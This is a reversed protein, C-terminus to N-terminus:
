SPQMDEKKLLIPFHERIKEDMKPDIYSPYHNALIERAKQKSRERMDKAGADLWQQSTSRDSIEPYYYESRSLKQTQPHALYHGAGGLVTEKIVDFSLTEETVEIGRLTRNIMGLMDNDMVLSDFSSALLSNLTGASESIMNAGALAALTVTVGKEFGSQADAIKSDTMGAAIGSPLDYFDNVMQATAATMLAQEASGGSFSGTRLDSAFPWAAFDIECGPRIINAVALCALTEAIVQVLSGALATPSTSGSQSAVAFSARMGIKATHAFVDLSDKAFRMPSIVPCVGIGMFPRKLFAGEEGLAMDLMAIIPAIYEVNDLSVCTSKNSGAYLAYATNIAHTRADPIDTAVVMQSSNHINDLADVVRNLDYMDKLTSPRYEGTDMDAMSIAEGGTCFYVKNGSLDLDWKPDPAYVTFHRAAGAIIDEILDKPFHLRGADDITCGRAVSLEAVEPTPDAIGVEELLALATEHIREMDRKSLLKYQGGEIGPWISKVSSNKSRRKNKRELRKQARADNKDTM